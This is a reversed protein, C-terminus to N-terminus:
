IKSLTWSGISNGLIMILLKYDFYISSNVMYFYNAICHDFGCLIFVMIAFITILIKNDLYGRVATYM